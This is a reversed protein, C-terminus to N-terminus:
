IFTDPTMKKGEQALSVFFCFFFFIIVGSRLNSKFSSCHGMDAFLVFMCNKFRM